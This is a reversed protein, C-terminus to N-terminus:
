SPCATSIESKAIPNFPTACTLNHFFSSSFPCTHTRQPSKWVWVFEYWTKTTGKRRFAALCLMHIIQNKNTISISLYKSHPTLSLPCLLVYLHESFSVKHSERVCLSMCGKSHKKKSFAAYLVNHQMILVKPQLSLFYSYIRSHLSPLYLSLSSFPYTSKLYVNLTDWVQEISAIAKRSFLFTQSM